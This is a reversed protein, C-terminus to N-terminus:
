GSCDESDLALLHVGITHLGKSCAPMKIGHRATNLVKQQAQIIDSVQFDGLGHGLVIYLTSYYNCRSRM